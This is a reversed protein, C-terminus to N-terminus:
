DWDDVPAVSKDHCMGPPDRDVAYVGSAAATIPARFEARARSEDSGATAVGRSGASAPAAAAALLVAMAILAISLSRPVRVQRKM